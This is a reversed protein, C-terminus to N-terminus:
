SSRRIQSTAGHIAGDVPMQSDLTFHCEVTALCLSEFASKLIAGDNLVAILVIMVATVPYFDFILIALTMFLLVRLTEAIHYIAYSNM